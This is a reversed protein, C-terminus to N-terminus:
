QQVPVALYGSRARVTVKSRKVKVNVRRFSGDLAANTSQYGLLYYTTREMQMRAVGASLDNTNDLLFGGTEKALRGLVATPRSSLIQEQNELDKTWAGESRQADGLGQAGALGVNRGVEAEKSHVRLGAADVPYIAINARNAQGILADFRAKLRDTIPLSETFYLISKRGPLVALGNVAARLGSLSTDGEYETLFRTYSEEMRWEMQILKAPDGSHLRKEREAVTTFGAGYEAGATPPDSPDLGQIKKSRRAREADASLNNAATAAVRDIARRLDPAQNTFPQATTFALDAVFVGAYDHPPSLTGVYALAANRALPRVEPSLRDFLIATVSPTNDAAPAPAGAPPASPTVSAAPVPVAGAATKGQSRAVGAQVLRVSLIQQKVGDESLEFDAPALDVISQGQKNDFVSIDIVVGATTTKVVPPQSQAHAGLTAVVLALCVVIGRKM